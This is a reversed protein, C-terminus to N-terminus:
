DQLERACGIRQGKPAAGGTCQDTPMTLGSAATAWPNAAAATGAGASGLTLIKEITPQELIAAIIKLEGGCNPCHALDLEFVRRLLRAWRLRVPRHHACNTGCLAPQAADAPEDASGLLAPCAGDPAASAPPEASTKASSLPLKPAPSGSGRVAATPRGSGRGSMIPAALLQRQRRVGSVPRDRAGPGLWFSGTALPRNRACFWTGGV